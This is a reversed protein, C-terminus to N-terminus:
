AAALVFQRARDSLEARCGALTGALLSPLPRRALRQVRSGVFRVGVLLAALELPQSALQLLQGLLDLLKTTLELSQRRRARRLRETLRASLVRRGGGGRLLAIRALRLLLGPLGFAAQFIGLSFNLLRDGLGLLLEHLL